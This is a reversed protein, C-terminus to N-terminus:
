RVRLHVPLCRAGAAELDAGEAPATPAARLDQGGASSPFRFPLEALPLSEGWGFGKGWVQDRSFATFLHTLVGRNQYDELEERYLFHQTEKQCGFFLVM